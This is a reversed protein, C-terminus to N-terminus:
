PNMVSKARELQSLTNIGMVEQPNITISRIHQSEGIAVEVTDTLYFENLANNNNILDINSWLWETNFMYIGPNVEKIKREKEGADKYETVKLINGYSDRIIRGYNNLSARNGRFDPAFTTFMSIVSDHYQHLTILKKMSAAKIFPMDGYLVLIHKATIKPRACWVAHATGLQEKQFAYIYRPGLATMVASRKFGVVVVPPQTSVKDVQELLPMILPRGHLPFLVKPLDINGMRRGRGAALIVIQTQM